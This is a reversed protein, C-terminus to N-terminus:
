SATYTRLHVGVNRPSKGGGDEPCLYSKGSLLSFNLM